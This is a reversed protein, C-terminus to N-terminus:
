QSVFLIRRSEGGYLAIFTKVAWVHDRKLPLVFLRKVRKEM